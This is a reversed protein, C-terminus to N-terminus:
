SYLLQCDGPDLSPRDFHLLSRCQTSWAWPDTLGSAQSMGRRAKQIEVASKYARSAQNLNQPTALSVMSDVPAQQLCANSFGSACPKM